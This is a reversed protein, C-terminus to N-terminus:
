RIKKSHQDKSFDEMDYKSHKDEIGYREQINKEMTEIDEIFNKWENELKHKLKNGYEYLINM